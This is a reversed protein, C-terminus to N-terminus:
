GGGALKVLEGDDQEFLPLAGFGGWRVAYLEEVGDGVPAEAEGGGGVAFVSGKYGAPLLYGWGDEFVSAVVGEAVEKSLDVVSFGM